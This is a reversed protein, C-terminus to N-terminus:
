ANGTYVPIATMMGVVTAVAYNPICKSRRGCARMGNYMSKGCYGAPGGCAGISQGNGARIGNSNCYAIIASRNNRASVNEVHVGNCAVAYINLKSRSKTRRYM